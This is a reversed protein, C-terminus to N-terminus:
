YLSLHNGTDPQQTVALSPDLVVESRCLREIASFDSEVFSSFIHNKSSINEKFIDIYIFQMQNNIMFLLFCSYYNLIEVHM